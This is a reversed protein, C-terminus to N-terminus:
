PKPMPVPKGQLKREEQQAAADQAEEEAAYRKSWLRKLATRQEPTLIKSLASRHEARKAALKEMLETIEVQQTKQIKQTAASQEPSLNLQKWYLPLRVKPEAANSLSSATGFLVLLLSAALAGLIRIATQRTRRHSLPPCSREPRAPRQLWFRRSRAILAAYMRTSM